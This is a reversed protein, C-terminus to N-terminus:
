LLMFLRVLKCRLELAEHRPQGIVDNIMERTCVLTSMEQRIRDLTSWVASRHVRSDLFVYVVTYSKLREFNRPVTTNHDIQIGCM